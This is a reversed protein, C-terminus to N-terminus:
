AARRERMRRIMAEKAPRHIAWDEIGEERDGDEEWDEQEAGWAALKDFWAAPVPVLLFVSEQYGTPEMNVGMGGYANHNSTPINGHGIVDGHAIIQRLMSEAKQARREKEAVLYEHYSVPVTLPKIKRKM